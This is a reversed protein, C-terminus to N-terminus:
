ATTSDPVTVRNEAVYIDEDSGDDYNDEDDEIHNSSEHSVRVATMRMTDPHSSFALFPVASGRRRWYAYGCAAVILTALFLVLYAVVANSQFLEFYCTRHFEEQRKLTCNAEPLLRVRAVVCEQVKQWSSWALSTNYTCNM